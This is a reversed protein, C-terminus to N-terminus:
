LCLLFKNFKNIDTLENWIDLWESYQRDIVEGGISISAEEILAHGINNVWRKYNSDTATIVSTPAPLLIQLWMKTILDGKRALDFKITQGFNLSGTSTQEVSEMAFNTHRKYVMKFFTISPNGTLYINQAGHAVLQMLAGGM